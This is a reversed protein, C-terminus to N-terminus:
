ETDNKKIFLTRYILYDLFLTGVLTLGYLIYGWVSNLKPTLIMFLSMTLVSLIVSSHEVKSSFSSHIIDHLIFGLWYLIFPVLFIPDILSSLASLFDFNWAYFKIVLLVYLGIFYLHRKLTPKM